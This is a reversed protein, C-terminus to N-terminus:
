QQSVAQVKRSDDFGRPKGDGAFFVSIQPGRSGQWPSLFIPALVKQGKIKEYHAVLGTDYLKRSVQVETVVEEGDYGNEKPASFGIFWKETVEGTKKNVIEAKRSGKVVGSIHYM